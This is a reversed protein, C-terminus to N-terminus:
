LSQRVIIQNNYRIDLLAIDSIKNKNIIQEKFKKLIELKYLTDNNGLLVQIPPNSSSEILILIIEDNIPDYPLLTSVHGGGFIERQISNSWTGDHKKHVFEIKNMEFFGQHINNKSIIKYQPKM